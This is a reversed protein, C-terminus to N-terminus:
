PNPARTLQDRFASHCTVCGQMVKAHYRLVGDMDGVRAADAMEGAGGHVSRDISQFLEMRPGVADMLRQREAPSPRPHHAIASAYREIAEFDEAFIATNLHNMDEALGQMIVKFTPGEQAAAGAIWSVAVLALAARRVTNSLSM